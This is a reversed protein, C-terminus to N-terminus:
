EAGWGFSPGLAARGWCGAPYPAKALANFVVYCGCGAAAQDARFVPGRCRRLERDYIPCKRCTRMRRKWTRPSVRGTMVARAMKLFSGQRLEEKLVARWERLHRYEIKLIRYLRTM